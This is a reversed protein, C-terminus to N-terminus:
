ASLKVVQSCQDVLWQDHTVILFIAHPHEAFMGTMIRRALDTNLNSTPEDLIYLPAALYLMRALGIRQRQGGSLKRGQEGVYIKDQYDALEVLELVSALKDKQYKCGIAVNDSISMDFIAPDQPCYRLQKRWSILQASELDLEDVSVAGEQPTSLGAVVDLLTSKGSGSPGVIAIKSGCNAFLNVNEFVPKTSEPFTFLLSKLKIGVKMEPVSQQVLDDYFGSTIKNLKEVRVRGSRLLSINAFIQHGVPFLKVGAAVFLALVPLTDQYDLTSNSLLGSFVIIMAVFVLGELILKPLDMFLSNRVRTDALAIANKFYKEEYISGLDALLVDRISGLAESAVVHRETYLKVQKKSDNRLPNRFVSYIALYIVIIFIALSVTLLPNFYLLVLGISVLLFLQSVMRGLPLSVYTILDSVGEFLMSKKDGSHMQNHWILPQKLMRAFIRASLKYGEQMTIRAVLYISFARITLGTLYIFSLALISAEISLSFQGISLSFQDSKLAVLIPVIAGISLMEFLASVASIVYTACHRYWSKRGILEVYERLYM